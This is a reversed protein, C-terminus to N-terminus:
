ELRIAFNVGLRAGIDILLPLYKTAKNVALLFVQQNTSSTLILAIWVYPVLSSHGTSISILCM